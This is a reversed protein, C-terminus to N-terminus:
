RSHRSGRSRKQKHEAQQDARRKRARRNNRRRVEDPVTYREAIITRAEQPTVPSGDVDRLEYPRDQLLITRVRDLLHTACACVAQNHHNGKSVMQEYYVAAIQPDYRRAVDADLYAYKKVLDPGAQSISLGKSEAQGSQRSEPVLGHWGRFKRNNPFREVRGIFSTLVAASEEGVGYLSELQRTPHLQRYLPRITQKWVIDAHDELLALIRQERCVEQQLLTYDLADPGYLKLV